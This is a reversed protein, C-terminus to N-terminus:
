VDKNWRRASNLRRRRNGYTQLDRASAIELLPRNDLGPTIANTAAPNTVRNIRELDEMDLFRDTLQM